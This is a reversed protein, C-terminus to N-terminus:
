KVRIRFQGEETTVTGDLNLPYIKGTETNRVSKGELVYKTKKAPRNVSPTEKATSYTKELEALAAQKRADLNKKTVKKDNVAQSYLTTYEDSDPEYKQLLTRREKLFGQEIKLVDADYKQNIRNKTARYEKEVDGRTPQRSATAQKPPTGAARGQAQAKAKEYITDLTTNLDERNQIGFVQQLAQLKPTGAAVLEDVKQKWESPKAEERLNHQYEQEQYYQKTQENAWDREQGLAAQKQRDKMMKMMMFQKIIDSIGGGWNPHKSYPNYFPNNGSAQMLDSPDAGYGYGGYGGYRPM